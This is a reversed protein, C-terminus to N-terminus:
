IKAKLLNEGEIRLTDILLWDKSSAKLSKKGTSFPFKSATKVRNHQPPVKFYQFDSFAWVQRFIM